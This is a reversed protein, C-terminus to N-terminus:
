IKRLPIRKLRDILDSAVVQSHYPRSSELANECFYSRRAHDLGMMDLICETLKESDGPPFLRGNFHDKLYTSIGGIDSGVVPVACSLAELGVLGLSESMRTSPFVFLDMRCFYKRLNKQEIIGFYEVRSGLDLKQIKENLQREQSGGGIIIIRFDLGAISKLISASDLLIDWGKGEDIRSVFGITFVRPRDELPCPFFISTDVGASPSIFIKSREVRYEREIIEMYYKSPTIILDARRLVGRVIKKVIRGRYNEPLIDSGHVNIVLPKAANNRYFILPLLTYGAYHAYILEADSRYIRKLSDYFYCLYLRIKEIVNRDNRRIVVREIDIGAKTLSRVFNEVFIGFTQRERSPYM